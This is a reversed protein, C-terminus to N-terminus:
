CVSEEPVMREYYWMMFMFYFQEFIMSISAPALAMTEGPFLLLVMALALGSNRWILLLSYPIRKERPLGAHRSTYEFVLHVLAIRVATAAIVSLALAVDDFFFDRSRGIAILAFMFFTFNIILTNVNDPIGVRRLPISVLLPILVFLLVYKVIELPNIANGILLYSFLPTLGIALVYIVSLSIMIMKGDGKMFITGSVVSIACPVCALIVWGNWMQDPYFLGVVLTVATAVFSCLFVALVVSRRYHALDDRHFEMKTLSFCMMIMLFVILLIADNEGGVDGIIFGIVIAALIWYRVNLAISMASM